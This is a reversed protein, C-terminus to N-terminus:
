PSATIATGPVPGPGASRRAHGGAATRRPCRRRGNEARGAGRRCRPGPHRRHGLRRRRALEALRPPDDYLMRPYRQRAPVAPDGTHRRPRGALRPRRWTAAWEDIRRGHGPDGLGHDQCRALLTEHAFTYRPADAPGVQQLIRAAEGDLVGRVKWPRSGTLRALDAATLPGDRAATLLGLVDLALDDGARRLLQTIEQDALERLQAAHPSDPLTYLQDAALAALPHAPDVDDPLRPFLRSAVLVRAQCAPCGPRCGGPSATGARACIRM